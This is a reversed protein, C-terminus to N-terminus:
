NGDLVAVFECSVSSVGPYVSQVQPPASYRWRLGSAGSEQLYAALASGAGASGNATTFTVMNWASNVSEYNSLISAAEDDTVNSFGLSLRADVRRSGFRIVTTAGNQAKFQTQPYNGPTYSRSTPKIEPFPILQTM